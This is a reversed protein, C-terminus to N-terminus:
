TKHKSVPIDYYKAAPNPPPPKKNNTKKKNNNNNKNTQQNQKQKVKQLPRPLADSFYICNTLLTPQHDDCQCSLLAEPQGRWVMRLFDSPSCLGGGMDM